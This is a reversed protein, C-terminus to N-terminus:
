LTQGFTKKKFPLVDRSYNYDKQLDSDDHTTVNSVRLFIFWLTEQFRVQYHYGQKQGSEDVIKGDDVDNWM